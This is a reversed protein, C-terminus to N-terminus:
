RDWFLAEIKHGVFTDIIIKYRGDGFWDAIMQMGKSDRNRDRLTSNTGKGSVEISTRQRDKEQTTGKKTEQSNKRVRAKTQQKWIIRDRDWERTKSCHITSKTGKHITETQATGSSSTEADTQITWFIYMRQWLVPLANHETELIKTDTDSHKIPEVLHYYSM